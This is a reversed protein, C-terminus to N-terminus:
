RGDTPSISSKPFQSIHASISRANPDIRKMTEFVSYPLCVCSISCSKVHLSYTWKPTIGMFSSSSSHGLFNTRSASRAAPLDHHYDFSKMGIIQFIESSMSEFLILSENKDRMIALM